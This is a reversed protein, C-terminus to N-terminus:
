IEEEKMIVLITLDGKLMDKEVKEVKFTSPYSVFDGSELAKLFNV